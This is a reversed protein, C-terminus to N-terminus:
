YTKVSVRGFINGVYIGRKGEVERERGHEGASLIPEMWPEPPALM